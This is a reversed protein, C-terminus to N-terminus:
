PRLTWTYQYQQNGRLLLVELTNAKAVLEWARMFQEPREVPERNVRQIVDGPQISRSNILPSDPTFADIRFGKFRGKVLHPSVRLSAIFQQPGKDIVAQVRARDLEGDILVARSQAPQAHAATIPGPNVILATAILAAVALGLAAVALRPSQM